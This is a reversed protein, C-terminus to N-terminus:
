RSGVSASHSNAQRAPVVSGAQPGRGSMAQVEPSPVRRGGARRACPPWRSRVKRCSRCRRPTTSPNRLCRESRRSCSGARLRIPQCNRSNGPRPAGHCRVRHLAQPRRIGPPGRLQRRVRRSPRVPSTRGPRDGVRLDELGSKGDAPCRQAAQHAVLRIGVPSEDTPTYKKAHGNQDRGLRGAPTRLYGADKGGARSLATWRRHDKAGEQRAWMRQRTEPAM